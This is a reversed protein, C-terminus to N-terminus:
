RIWGSAASVGHPMKSITSARRKSCRSLPTTVPAATAGNRSIVIFLRGPPSSTEVAEYYEPETGGSPLIIGLRIGRM